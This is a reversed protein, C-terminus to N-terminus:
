EALLFLQFVPLRDAPRRLNRAARVAFELFEASRVNRKADIGFLIGKTSPYNASRPERPYKDIQLSNIRRVCSGFYEGM